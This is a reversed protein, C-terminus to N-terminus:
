RNINKMKYLYYEYRDECKKIIDNPILDDQDESTSWEGCIPTLLDLYNKIKELSEQLNQPTVLVGENSKSMEYLRRLRYCYYNAAFQPRIKLISVIRNLSSRATNIFYIFKCISYLNKTQLQPNILLCDGYIASSNDLKHKLSFASELSIPNLYISNTNQIQIQSHTNLINVLKLHESGLHSAVFVFKNM